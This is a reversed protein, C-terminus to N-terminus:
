CLSKLHRKLSRTALSVYDYMIEDMYDTAVSVNEIPFGYAKDITDALVKGGKVMLLQNPDNIPQGEDDKYDSFRIFKCREKGLRRALEMRLKIGTADDDTALYITKLHEFKDINM